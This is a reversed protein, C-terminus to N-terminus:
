RGRLIGFGLWIVGAVAVTFSVLPIASLGVMAPQGHGLTLAGTLAAAAVVVATSGRNAARVLRTAVLDLDEVRWRLTLDGAEIQHLVRDARGPLERALDSLHILETVATGKLRELSYRDKILSEIYPRAAEVPNIGKAVQKALGETTVMAKFMMTFDSPLRIGHGVAVHALARLFAGMDVEEMPRGVAYRELAEVVDAEFAAFDVRGVPTGVSYWVRAVGELDERLVSFIIDVVKERMSRSLRGVMGFDIIGLRGDDELFVNGPHLDGHFFGDQFLMQYAADLYLRGVQARDTGEPLETLKSGRVREMTLVTATSLHKFVRPVHIREEKAGFNERFRTISQQEILFDLERMLSKDFEAVMGRLDFLEAEPFVDLVRESLFRLLSLDSEIVPRINPRQVKIVVDDGAKTRAGHVQAISASAIPRPDFEEFLAEPWDGLSDKISQRITQVPVEAVNDQLSMLRTALHPPVVDPRTSLIQGFKVFTPGLEELMHVARLFMDARAQPTSVEGEIRKRRAPLLLRRKEFAFAFGYKALITAIERARSADKVVTRLTRTTQYLTRLFSGAM